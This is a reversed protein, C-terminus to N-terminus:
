IRQSRTVRNRYDNNKSLYLILIICFFKCLMALFNHFLIKMVSTAIQRSDLHAAHSQQASLIIPDGWSYKKTNNEVISLARLSM